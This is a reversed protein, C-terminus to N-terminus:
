RTTLSPQLVNRSWRDEITRSAVSSGQLGQTSKLATSPETTPAHTLSCRTSGEFLPFLPLPLTLWVVVGGGDDDDDAM